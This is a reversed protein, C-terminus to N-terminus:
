RTNNNKTPQKNIQLQFIDVEKFKDEINYVPKIPLTFRFTSGQGPIGPSEVWINGGHSLVIGRAISLGLGAGGFKRDIGSDVQYFIDFIKKQHQTTLRRVLMSASTAKTPLSM